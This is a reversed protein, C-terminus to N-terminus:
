YKTLLSFMLKSLNKQHFECKMADVVIGMLALQWVCLKELNFKAGRIEKWRTEKDHLMLCM